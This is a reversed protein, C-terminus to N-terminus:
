PELNKRSIFIPVYGDTISNYEIRSIYQKPSGKSMEEYVEKVNVDYLTKYTGETKIKIEPFRKLWFWNMVTEPAERFPRIEQIFRFGTSERSTWYSTTWDGRTDWAILLSMDKLGPFNELDIVTQLYHNKWTINNPKHQAAEVGYQQIYRIRWFEDSNCLRRYRTDVQCTNLLSRDDLELLIKRDVDKVGLM